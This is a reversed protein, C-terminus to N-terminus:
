YGGYSGASSPPKAATAGTVAAGSSSLAWWTGGFSRIGEGATQGASSDGSYTYAPHGDVTLQQGGNLPTEGLRATVGPGASAAGHVMVPPWFQLCTGSCARAGPRDATLLYMVGGTPTTLVQGLSTSRVDVSTGGGSNGAPRLSTGTAPQPSTGSAAGATRAGSSGCGAGIGALALGGAALVVLRSPPRRIM